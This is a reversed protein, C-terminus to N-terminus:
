EVSYCSYPMPTGYLEMKLKPFYFGMGRNPIWEPYIKIIDFTYRMQEVLQLLVGYNGSELRRMFITNLCYMVQVHQEDSLAALPKEKIWSICSDVQAHFAAKTISFFHDRNFPLPELWVTDGQSFNDWRMKKTQYGPKEFYLEVDPCGTLGGSIASYSFNGEASTYARETKPDSAIAAVGKAYGVLPIPRGTQKDLVVGSAKQLCDCSAASLLLLFLLIRLHMLHDIRFAAKAPAVLL